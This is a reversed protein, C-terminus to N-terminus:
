RRRWAGGSRKPAISRDQRRECDVGSVKAGRKVDSPRLFPSAARGAKWETAGFSKGLSMAEAWGDGRVGPVFDFAGERPFAPNELQELFAPGLVFIALNPYGPGIRFLGVWGVQQGTLSTRQVDRGYLIKM